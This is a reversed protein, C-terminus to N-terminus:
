MGAGPACGARAKRANAAQRPNREGGDRRGASTSAAPAGRRRGASASAEPKQRRHRQAAGPAPPLRSGARGDMGGVRAPRALSRAARRPPVRCRRHRRGAPRRRLRRGAGGADIGGPFSLDRLHHEAYLAAHEGTGSEDRAPAVLARPVPQAPRRLDHRRRAGHRDAPPRPLRPRRVLRFLPAQRRDAHCHLAVTRGAGAVHGVAARRAEVLARPVSGAPEAPADPPCAGERLRVARRLDRRGSGDHAMRLRHDVKRGPAADRGQREDVAEARRRQATRESQGAPAVV